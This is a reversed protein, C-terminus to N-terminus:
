ESTVRSISMKVQDGATNYSVQVYYSLKRYNLIQLHLYSRHKKTPVLEDLTSHWQHFSEALPLHHCTMGICFYNALITPKQKISTLIESSSTQLVYHSFKQVNKCGAAM